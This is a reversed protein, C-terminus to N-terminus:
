GGRFKDLVKQFFSRRVGERFIINISYGDGKINRKAEMQSGFEAIRRGQEVLSWLVERTQTVLMDSLIPALGSESCEVRLRSVVAEVDTGANSHITRRLV